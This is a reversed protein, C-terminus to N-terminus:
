YIKFLMVYITWKRAHQTGYDLSLVVDFMMTSNIMQSGESRIKFSHFSLGSRRVQSCGRINLFNVKTGM